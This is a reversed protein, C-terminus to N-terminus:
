PLPLPTMPILRSDEVAATRHGLGARYGDHSAFALFSDVSGQRVLMVLDWREAEPGILCPGGAGLFQLDGGSDRLFPLTHRIYRDFAEAGSIPSDPALEPHASYDAVARFRLLNLMVVGDSFDRKAFAAGATWTPEVYRTPEASETAPEPETPPFALARAYVRVDAPWDAMCRELGARDDAFLARTAEEYGPFDGGIAQMFRYAAEQAAKRRQRDSGNRRADDVLRRLVSSAGGTQTGLWDWQRPLLTVERAVVGLKPRGRGKAAPADPEPAAEPTTDPKPAYRGPRSPSERSLREVVEEISGRLDLDVVRGTADDFVLIAETAGGETAAKVALAVDALPGSRLLHHGTFATCPLSRRDSM